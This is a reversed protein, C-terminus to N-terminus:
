NMQCQARWEIEGMAIGRIAKDMFDGDPAKEALIVLVLPSMGKVMRLLASLERAKM